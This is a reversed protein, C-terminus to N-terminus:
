NAERTLRSGLLFTLLVVLIGGFIFIKSYGIYGVLLGGVLSGLAVGLPSFMTDLAGVEKSYSSYFKSLVGSRGAGTIFGGLEKIGMLTLNGIFGVAGATLGLVISSTGYLIGGLFINQSEKKNSLLHIGYLSMAIFIISLLSLYFLIANQSWGISKLFLVFFAHYFGGVLLVSFSIAAFPLLPRSVSQKAIFVFREFSEQLTKSRDSNDVTKSSSLLVFVINVFYVVISAVFVGTFGLAWIFLAGVAPAISEAYYAAAYFWGFSSAPKETRIGALIGKSSVFFLAASLGLLVQLFYFLYSDSVFLMGLSYLAYGLIGLIVIISPNIKHNLYGVFPSAFTIPLYILFYTFGIKPLSLGKTLLFLPFYLSFLKYGFMLLFHSITSQRAVNEVHTLFIM